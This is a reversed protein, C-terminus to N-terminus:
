GDLASENFPIQNVLLEFAEQKERFNFLTSRFDAYVKIARTTSGLRHRLMRIRERERELEGELQVGKDLAKQLLKSSNNRTAEATELRQELSNVRYKLRMSEQQLNAAATAFQTLQYDAVQLDDSLKMALTLLRIYEGLKVPEYDQDTQYQPDDDKNENVVFVEGGNAWNVFQHLKSPFTTLTKPISPLSLPSLKSETMLKTRMAELIALM